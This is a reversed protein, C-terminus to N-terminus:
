FEASTFKEGSVSPVFVFAALHQYTTVVCIQFSFIQHRRKRIDKGKRYMKFEKCDERTDLSSVSYKAVKFYILKYPMAQLSIKISGGGYACCLLLLPSLPVPTVL